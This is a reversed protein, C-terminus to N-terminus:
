RRGSARCSSVRRGPMKSQVARTATRSGTNDAAQFVSVLLSIGERKVGGPRERRVTSGEIYLLSHRRENRGAERPRAPVPLRRTDDEAIPCARSRGVQTSTAAPVATVGSGHVSVSVQTSSASQQPPSPGGVSETAVPLLDRRSRLDSAVARRERRRLALGEAFIVLLLHSPILQFQERCAVVVLRAFPQEPLLM